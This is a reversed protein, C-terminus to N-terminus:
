KGPALKPFIAALATSVDFNRSCPIRAPLEFRSKALFAPRGETHLYRAASGDARTHKKFGASDAVVHVDTALFAILDMESAVIGKARKHLRIQYSSYPPTRPDSITEITSHALLVVTMGRKRRLWELGDLIEHWYRDAVVFGKGYGPSEMSQWHNDDCTKRWIIDELRDLSDIVVTKYNHEENGLATISEIVDAYNLLHGFTDVVLGGPAGDETQLFIASFFNAALTTKGVGELGHILVRPPLSVSTKLINAISIM